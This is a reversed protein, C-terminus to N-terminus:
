KYSIKFKFYSRLPVINYDVWEIADETTLGYLDICVDILKHYSYTLVGKNRKVIAKKFDKHPELKIKEKM